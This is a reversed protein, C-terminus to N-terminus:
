VHGVSFSLSTSGDEWFFSRKRQWYNGSHGARLLCSATHGAEEPPVTMPLSTLLSAAGETCVTTVNWPFQPQCTYMRNRDSGTAAQCMVERMCVSVCMWVCGLECATEGSHTNVQTILQDQSITNIWRTYRETSGEPLREVRCGILQWLFWVCATRLMLFCKESSLSFM